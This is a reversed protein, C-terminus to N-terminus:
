GPLPGNMRLFAGALHLSGCVLVTGPRDVMALAAPLDAATEDALLAPAVHGHGPV